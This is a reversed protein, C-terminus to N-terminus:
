RSESSKRHFFERRAPYFNRKLYTDIAERPIFIRGRLRYHDIEGAAAMSYLVDISLRLEAAAERITLRGTM